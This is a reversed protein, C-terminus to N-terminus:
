SAAPPKNADIRKVNMRFLVTKFMDSIAENQQRQLDEMMDRLQAMQRRCTSLESMMQQAREM